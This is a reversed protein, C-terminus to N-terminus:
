IRGRYAFLCILLFSCCTDDKCCLDTGQSVFHTWQPKLVTAVELQWTHLWAPVCRLGQQSGQACVVSSMLWRLAENSCDTCCESRPGVNHWDTKERWLNVCTGCFFRGWWIKWHIEALTKVSLTFHYFLLLSSIMRVTCFLYNKTSHGKREKKGRNAILFYENLKVSQTTNVLSFTSICFGLFDLTGEMM